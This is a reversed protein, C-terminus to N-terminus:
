KKAAKKKVPSKVFVASKMKNVCSDAFHLPLTYETDAKLFGFHTTNFGKELIKIKVM